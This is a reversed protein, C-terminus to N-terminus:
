ERTFSVLLKGTLLQSSDALSWNGEVNRERMTCRPM